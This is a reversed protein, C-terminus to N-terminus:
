ILTQSNVLSPYDNWLTFDNFDNLEVSYVYIYHMNPKGPPEALLSDVQSAPSMSEIGPNPLDGPSIFAVWELIRAQLIGYCPAAFLRVPSLSKWKREKLDSHYHGVRQSGPSCGVPSRQGHSEAPLFVPTVQWLAIHWNNGWYFHFSIFLVM